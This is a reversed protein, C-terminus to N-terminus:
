GNIIKFCANTIKEELLKGPFMEPATVTFLYAGELLASIVMLDGQPDKSGKSIIFKSLMELLPKAKETYDDQLSEAVKPQFMLSYYLKWYRLNERMIQFIKKIFSIFEEETLVRDKNLDFNSYVTDFGQLIIEDLIEKKSEFYYYTLGKSIGAKRAIHSISTAHFGNEAFLELATDMILKKKQKRIDDFQEQSKPM